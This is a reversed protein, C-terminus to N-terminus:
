RRTSIRTTTRRGSTSSTRVGPPTVQRLSSNNLQPLGHRASYENADALITPSAYADIIAVTQGSGDLGSSAVGYAGRVQAPTYGCPAWSNAHGYADPALTGDPTATNTTSKEGFYTSCPPANVFAPSPPASPAILASSEDLGVVGVVSAPLSAPVSLESQPARLTKGQVKYESFTTSFTAAAQAVTGEAQVYRNNGPTYDIDFGAKKLWQQVAAADSASPAFQARFQAASLFKRYSASGPTSVATALTAAASGGTWGLYVRFGVNDGAPAAGVRAAPKAWSPVSGSLVRGGPAAGASTVAVTMGGVAAAVGVAALLRLRRSGSM